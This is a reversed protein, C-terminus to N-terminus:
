QLAARLRQAMIAAQSRVNDSLKKNAAVDEYVRIADNTRNQQQYLHALLFHNDAYDPNNHIADRLVAEAQEMNGFQILFIAYSNAYRPNRPPLMAAKHCWELGEPDKRRCLLIGLNYAAQALRPESKLAARLYQEAKTMNNYEAELLGLNLNVLPCEPEVKLARQLMEYAKSSNGMRAYDMAANVMPAIVDDRYELAKEYKSLATSYDGIRDYYIGQNYFTSWRDPWITLSEWYEKLASDYIKQQEPTFDKKPHALLAGAARVRVLRMKDQAAGLLLDTGEFDYQMTAAAASRVLASPDKLKRHITPWMSDDPCGQLLRLLSTATVQDCSPDELYELIQPLKEWEGNRAAHIMRGRRLTDNQYDSGHWETVYRNAWQADKDTHCINCANPAKFEITAAPAPPLFSHDSQLMNGFYRGPMHCSICISGKSDKPHHSHKEVNAVREAHCPLCSKNPDDKFRFRGSSTHCTTCELTGKNACPNMLWHTVTYNEGLHRGTPYFDRDEFCTLDFHDFFPEGPTFKDTIPSMKAHCVFCADDRQRRTLDRHWSILKIDKPKEGRKEAERCVKVHEKGPGHCTECNIGPEFWVTHYSDDEPNYNKQLQSVHCDFCAANFTLMRDTWELARDRVGEHFHRVMSETTHYWNTTRLNYAVPLVQLHGRDLETLFFFVNKGGLVHQIPYRVTSGDPKVGIMWGGTDDYEAHFRIDGVTISNTQPTLYNKALEPTFPQMAKGHHSTEWKVYFPEHCSRCKSSGIYINQYTHQKEQKKQKESCGNLMVGLCVLPATWVFTIRILYTKM